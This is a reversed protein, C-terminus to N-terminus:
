RPKRGSTLYHLHGGASIHTGDDIAALTRALQGRALTWLEEFRQVIGGGALFYRRANEKTSGLVPAAGSDYCRRLQEIQQQAGSQTYPPALHATQDNLRVLIETCGVTHLGQAIVQGASQHGEGVSQKGATCYYELELLGVVETWPQLPDRIHSAALSGFNNPEASLFLGGPKLVRLMEEIVVEIRAVHILVTQCTVMDFHNDPWPLSEAAGVVFTSRDGLGLKASREAATKM